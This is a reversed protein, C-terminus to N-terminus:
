QNMSLLPLSVIRENVGEEIKIEQDTYLKYTQNLSTIDARSFSNNLKDHPVYNVCLGDKCYSINIELLNHNSVITKKVIQEIIHLLSGPIIYGSIDSDHVIATERYPLRNILRSLSELAKLEERIEIIEQNNKSLTYRYLLAFDDIMDDAADLREDQIYTILSELTEFLLDPNVGRTLKLFNADSQEKLHQEADLIETSAKKIFYHSLFVSSLAISLGAYLIIFPQLESLLPQYGLFFRFYISLGLCVILSSIIVTALLTLLVKGTDTVEIDSRSLIVLLYRTSETILLALGVCVFFEDTIFFDFLQELSNNALLILLYIITGSVIPSVVRFGLYDTFVRTNM